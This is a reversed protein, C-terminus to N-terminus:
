RAYQMSLRYFFLLFFACTAHMTFLVIVVAGVVDITFTSDHRSLICKLITENRSISKEHLAFANSPGANNLPDLTAVSEPGTMPELFCISEICFSIVIVVKCLNFLKSSISASRM